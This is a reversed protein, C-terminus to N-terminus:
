GSGDGFVVVNIMWWTYILYRLRVSKSKYSNTFRIDTIWEYKMSDRVSYNTMLVIKAIVGFKLLHQNRFLFISSLHTKKLHCLCLGSETFM